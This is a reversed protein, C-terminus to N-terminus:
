SRMKANHIIKQIDYLVFAGFLFLGGYLWINFLARSPWFINVLSLGILGGLGVGLMGRWMLFQESPANYAVLGLAAMSAGTAFLADYVIPMGAMSILPIMSMSITGVFGAWLLHKLVPNQNYNTFMTGILLGISGFLLLFPHKYPIPSNRLAAVLLGTM